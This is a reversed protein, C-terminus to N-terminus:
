MRLVHIYASMSPAHRRSDHCLESMGSLFHARARENTASGSSRTLPGATADTGGNGTAFYLGDDASLVAVIRGYSGALLREVVPAPPTSALGTVRYLCEDDPSALFLNNRWAAPTIGSHFAASSATIGELLVARGALRNMGAQGTSVGGADPEVYWLAGTEPEWDFDLWRGRHGSSFVPSVASPNDSPTGGAATFRLIKGAYSAFDDAEAPDLATTAM